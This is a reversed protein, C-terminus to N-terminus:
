KKILSKAMEETIAGELYILMTKDKGVPRQNLYYLYRRESGTGGLFYMGFYLKGKKYIVEKSKAITGDKRVAKEINDSLKEDNNVVISKYKTLGAMQLKQGTIEM